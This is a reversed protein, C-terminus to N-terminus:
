AVMQNFWETLGGIQANYVSKCLHKMRLLQYLDTMLKYVVATGQNTLLDKPIGILRFHLVLELEIHKSTAKQIPVAELYTIVYDM